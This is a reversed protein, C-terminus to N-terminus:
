LLGHFREPGDEGFRKEAQSLHWPLPSCRVQHRDEAFTSQLCISEPVSKDCVMVGM